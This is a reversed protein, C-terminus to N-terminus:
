PVNAEPAYNPDAYHKQVFQTLKTQDVGPLKLIWRWATIAVKADTLPPYPELIVKNYQRRLGTVLTKLQDVEQPSLNNYAIVIGGHELNHTTIERPLMADKIGWPAPAPPTQSSWHEGSTPPETKYQATQGVPIHGSGEDAMLTGITEGPQLSPPPPPPPEFVGAARLGLVLAVFAVVAVGIVVLQNIGRGSGGRRRKSTPRKRQERRDHRTTITV